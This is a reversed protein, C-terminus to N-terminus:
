KWPNNLSSLQNLDNIVREMNALYYGSYEGTLTCDHESTGYMVAYKAFGGYLYSSYKWYEGSIPKGSLYCTSGSPYQESANVLAENLTVYTEKSSKIWNLNTVSTNDGSIILKNQVLGAFGCADYVAYMNVGDVICNIFTTTTTNPEAAMGLIAGVKGYGNITSDKVQVNNFTTNGYSYGAVIGYINGAYEYYANEVLANIITLNQVTGSLKWFLGNGYYQRNNDKDLYGYDKTHMGVITHNGGDFVGRFMKKSSHSGISIWELGSLDIDDTLTITKGEFTENITNDNIIKALGALQKATSISYSTDSEHSEYWSADALQIWNTAKKVEYKGDENQEAYYGDALFDTPKVSYIGGAIRIVANGNSSSNSHTSIKGNFEGGIIDTSNGEYNFQMVSIGNTGGIYKGDEIVIQTGEDGYVAYFGGNSADFLNGEKLTVKSVYCNIGGTITVDKISFSTEETSNGVFFVYNGNGEINGNQVIINKGQYVTQSDAGAPTTGPVNVNNTLTKGNLDFVCGEAFNYETWNELMPTVCDTILILTEKESTDNVADLLNAYAKNKSVNFCVSSSGVYFESFHPTTFRLRGTVPDYIPSDETDEAIPYGDYYVKVDTLGKAIYTVITVSQGNFERVPENNVVLSIDLGAVATDDGTADVSFNSDIQNVNVILKTNEATVGTLSGAPFLASTYIQTDDTSAMMSPSVNNITFTTTNDEENIVPTAVGSDSIPNFKVFGNQEDVFGIVKTTRGSYIQVTKTEAANVAGDATYGVGITYSGVPLPIDDTSITNGANTTFSYNVNGIKFVNPAVNNGNMDKIYVGDLKLYGEQGEIIPSVNIDVTSVGNADSLLVGLRFGEYVVKTNDSTLRAQLYFDWKGLSFTIQNDLKGEVAEERSDAPIKRWETAQGTLFDSGPAKTAKYYWEITPDNVGVFGPKIEQLSRSQSAAFSVSVLQSEVSASENSCSILCSFAVLVALAIITFRKM